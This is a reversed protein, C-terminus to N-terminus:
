APAAVGTSDDSMSKAALTRAVRRLMGPRLLRTPPNLMGMVSLFEQAAWPDTEAAQLVREVYANAVRMSLSPQGEVEPLALDSGASTRWAVQIAKAAARHFRRPLNKGGRRLCDGLTTAEIAAVTIGQAYVPNFSCVADGVVVLGDPIRELRDYRRWRNAPYRHLAVDGLPEAAQVAEFLEKPMLAELFTMLDAASSPPEVDKGLTAAGITWLDNECRFMAYGRPRGPRFLDFVAYERLVEAPMRFRMSAYCVNVTVQDESPRPYGMQELFVPTRSGRGTADVVLTAAIDSTHGARDTVRVGTVVGATWTLADIGHGDLLTVTPLARVRRRVCSEIYPRSAFFNVVASPDPLRGSRTILHGGFRMHFRSLDGDRWEYGGGAVLDRGFGPFLEELIKGSRALIAHPQKSQPVGRRPAASDDLEDREVVTVRDYFETLVRATVLGAMSAGLVVAHERRQEM